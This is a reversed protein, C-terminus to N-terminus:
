FSWKLRLFAYNLNSWERELTYLNEYNFAFFQFFASLNLNNSLSYVMSPGAYFGNLDVDYFYMGSLSGSLLPTIPYALQGFYNFKTFALSKVDQSAQASGMMSTLSLNVQNQYFFEVMLSVSKATVYDMGLSVQFLNEKDQYKLLSHFYSTEGRISLSNIGTSFGFGGVIDNEEVVVPLSTTPNYDNYERSYYGGLFQFETNWMTFRYMGAGVVKGASDIKAALDLSSSYNPYYVMRVADAGPREPYDFDFFSYSNFLDNPNWVFSQGWNIRQRGLKIELKDKTYQVWARDIDMSLFYSRGLGQHFTLPLAYNERKFGNEIDMMLVMDGNHLQNRMQVSVSLSSTPYWKLDLRNHILGQWLASDTNWIVSPMESLYGSLELKDGGMATVTLLSLYLSLLKHIAKM